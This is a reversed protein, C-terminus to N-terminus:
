EVCTRKGIAQYYTIAYKEGTNSWFLADRIITERANKGLFKAFEHDDLLTDIKTTLDDANELSFLLGNKRHKILERVGSIDSAICPLSSSMAELLVNPRGESLSTLIFLDASAYISPLANPTLNGMFKVQKSIGTIQCYSELSGKQEGDGVITLTTNNDLLRHSCCKIALEANKRPILSGVFLINKVKQEPLNARDIKLFDASIGNPIYTIRESHAQFVGRLYSEMESSVCIIRKNTSICIKLILNSLNSKKSRTIDEGRLTTIVPTRLMFGIIGAIAGNISWNAHLVDSKLCLKITSLTMSLLFPVVLIKNLWSSRIAVPLGGPQHALNQMRKPAYRFRIVSYSYPNSKKTFNDDPTLVTRQIEKPLSEVLNRVFVGSSDQKSLPFSTTIIGVKM